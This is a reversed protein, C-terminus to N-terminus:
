ICHVTTLIFFKCKFTKARQECIRLRTLRSFEVAAHSSLFVDSRSSNSSIRAVKYGAFAALDYRVYDNM